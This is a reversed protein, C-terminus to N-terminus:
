PLERRTRGRVAGRAKAVVALAGGVLLLGVVLYLILKILAGIASIVMSGVILLAIVGVTIWVLTRGMDSGETTAESPGVEMMGSISRTM